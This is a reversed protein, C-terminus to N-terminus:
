QDVLPDPRVEAVAMPPGAVDWLGPDREFFRQREIVPERVGPVAKSDQNERLRRGRRGIERAGEGVKLLRDVEVGVELARLHVVHVREHHKRASRGSVATNSRGRGPLDSSCVDSSWDCDFRTHRRRSSFFFDLLHYAPSFYSSAYRYCQSESIKFMKSYDCYRFIDKMSYVRTPM